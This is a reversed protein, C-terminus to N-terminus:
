APVTWALHTITLGPVLEHRVPRYGMSEYLALAPKNDAGTSVEFRGATPERTHLEAM